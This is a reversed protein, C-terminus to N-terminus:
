HWRGGGMSEPDGQPAETTGKHAQDKKPQNDAESDAQALRKAQGLDLARKAAASFAKDRDTRKPPKYTFSYHRMPVFETEGLTKEM